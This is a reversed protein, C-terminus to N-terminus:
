AGTLLWEDTGIKILSLLRYQGPTTLGGSSTRITVGSGAVVTVTGAGYQMILIETDVLFAATSNPPVTLNNATAKTMKVLKYADALVLQYSDSQTNINLGPTLLRSDTGNYHWVFGSAYWMDGSNPSTPASGTRMRLSAYTTTSAPLDLYATPTTTGLGVLGNFYNKASAGSQYIAFGSNNVIDISRWDAAATLTPNIYIGRTIGNAGGTQNITTLIEFEHYTATGSTPAFTSYNSLIAIAGSTNTISSINSIRVGPTGTSVNTQISLYRTPYLELVSTSYIERFYSDGVYVGRSVGGTYNPTLKINGNNDIKGVVVNNYDRWEYTSASQGNETKTVMLIDTIVHARTFLGVGNLPETIVVKGLGAGYSARGFYTEGGFPQIEFGYAGSNYMNQIFGTASGKAGFALGFSNGSLRSGFMYARGPIDSASNIASAQAWTQQFDGIYAPTNTQIGIRKNTYDWFLNSNDQQLDNSAGVFLVSGPTSSTLNTGIGVTTPITWSRNASLDYTTGNITLERVQPTYTSSLYNILDTQDTLTGTISGWESVGVSTANSESIVVEFSKNVEYSEVLGTNAELMWLITRNFPDTTSRVAYVINDVMFYRNTEGNYVNAKISLGNVYGDMKTKIYAPTQTTKIKANTKDHKYMVIGRGTNDTQVSMFRSLNLIVDQGSPIRSGAVELLRYIGVQAM